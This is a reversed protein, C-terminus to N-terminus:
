RVRKVAAGTLLRGGYARVDRELFGVLAGYGENVRAQTTGAMEEAAIEGRLLAHASIREPRAAHFGMVFGNALRRDRGRIEERDLFERFSHDPAAHDIRDILE